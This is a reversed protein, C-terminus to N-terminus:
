PKRYGEAALAEALHEFLDERWLDILWRGFQGDPLTADPKFTQGYVAGEEIGLTLWQRAFDMAEASLPSSREVVDIGKLRFRARWSKVEHLYFPLRYEKTLRLDYTDGDVVQGVTGRAPDGLETVTFVYDDTLDLSM